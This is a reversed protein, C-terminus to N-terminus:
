AGAADLHFGFERDMAKGELSLCRGPLQLEQEPGQQSQGAVALEIYVLEVMVALVLSQGLRGYRVQQVLPQFIPIMMM